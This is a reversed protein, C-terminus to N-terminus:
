MSQRAIKIDCMENPRASAIAIGFIRYWDMLRPNEDDRFYPKIKAVIKTKDPRQGYSLNYHAQRVQADKEVTWSPLLQGSSDRKRSDKGTLTVSPDVNCPTKGDWINLYPKRRGSQMFDDREFTWYFQVLDGPFIEFDGNMVTRLGGIMVSTMTDGSNAHAYGITNAFGVTFYDYMFPLFRKTHVLGKDNKFTEMSSMDVRSGDPAIISGPVHRNREFFDIINQREGITRAYHNMFRIMNLAVWTDAKDSLAGLNSIVKPYASNSTRKLVTRPDWPRGVGVVLEDKHICYRYKNRVLEESDDGVFRMMDDTSVRCQQIHKCASDLRTNTAQALSPQFPLLYDSTAM